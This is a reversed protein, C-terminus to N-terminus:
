RYLPSGMQICYEPSTEGACLLPAPDRSRSAMSRKMCGLITNANQATLACYQSMDLKGDVRQINWNLWVNLSLIHSPVFYLSDPISSVLLLKSEM